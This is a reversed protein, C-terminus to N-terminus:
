DLEDPALGTAESIQEPSLGMAKLKRAAQRLETRGEARGQQLGDERGEKRSVAIADELRWEFINMGTVEGAHTELFKKLIDHELCYRVTSTMAEERSDQIKELSRFKAVFASYQELAKCRSVIEANRGENINLIRVVLELALEAQKALGLARTDEFAASLRVVEEDPYAAIGNYLVYFEPQPIRLLKSSHLADNPILAKYVECIYQLLRLAMNQNISSQHEVLVVLKGGILFSVDNNIGQFLVNELTKTVIPVDPPLAVGKLAGYLERLIDPNKFLMCFLSDKYQHNVEEM